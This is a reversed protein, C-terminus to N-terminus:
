PDDALLGAVDNVQHHVWAPLVKIDVEPFRSLADLEREAQRLEIERKSIQQQVTSLAVGAEVAKVLNALKSAVTDRRSKLADRESPRMQLANTVEATVAKTIRRVMVPKLLATRLGDLVLPDAVKARVIERADCATRGNHWSNPCGYRPSGHGSSVISVSKGCTGCRSLGVLLHKSYAGSRGHAGPTSTHRLRRAVATRREVACQWLADEIIRLDPNDVVHWHDRPQQRPILKNTGPRREYRVQGWVQRGLYRENRLIRQTHHRTWPTGRPTLVNTTNLRDAMEPHSVGDVYWTFIQRITTAQDPDVELRKGIVAPGDADKRGSPDYVKLSRYGYTKGGSHFGRDIQGKIGRRTKHRLEKIYLQDVVGHVAVLTEAQESATDLGQSIFIIRVGAFTLHQVIRIADATDRALRSTDDVLVVDFPPPATSAAKLLAQIGPRGELSSGSIGADSYVHEDLVM